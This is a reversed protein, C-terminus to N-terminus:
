PDVCQSWSGHSGNSGCQGTVLGLSGQLGEVVVALSNQLKKNTPNHKTWFTV